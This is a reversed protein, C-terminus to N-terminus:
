RPPSPLSGSYVPKGLRTIWLGSNLDIFYALGKHPQAGWTFPLNPRFGDPAGTWLRAIERGQRLLDGRLEGSVDLVRGGGTYYGMYLVDDEVWINHAGGEPVIYDAVKRPKSIDSVDVVWVAGRVPIRDKSHLNWRAPFVEDGVYVYEKYRFVAHAGALWGDGYLEHYNFRLQSVIEPKEPSGGALGAGVDLIVLGDRWYALYALGDKVYVDHLYRGAAFPSKDEGAPEITRAEPNPVEWRAIQRPGRPDRFDIIRMSGTADDTLYVYHDDIFASHVGGSVTETFESLIRPKSPDETDLFVIGNKRNSAGERTMVGVRGSPSVSVDNIIRADVELTHVQKPNAPDKIDYVRLENDISSLYAYDGFIWQEAAQLDTFAARGVVEIEREVNRPVIEISTSALRDGSSVLVTYVGPREAVFGGDPDISAGAGTVSFRLSPNPIPEGAAGTVLAKFHVVDGTRATKGRPEVAVRAAPNPVVDVELTGSSGEAWARFVARGSALGVAFGSADVSAVAPTEATWSWDVRERPVGRATFAMAELRTDGGVVLPPEPKRVEVRTVRPAKVTVDAFGTKGGIVAGVRVEGAHHFVVSGDNDASAVDFPAAFWSAVPEELAEGSGDRALARFRLTEGVEAEATAPSVEVTEAASKSEAKDTPETPKPADEQAGAAVLSVFLSIAFRM